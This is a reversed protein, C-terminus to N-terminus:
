SWKLIFASADEETEFYIHWIASSCDPIKSEGCQILEKLILFGHHDHLCFNAAEVIEANRRAIYELVTCEQMKSEYTSIVFDAFNKVWLVNEGTREVVIALYM